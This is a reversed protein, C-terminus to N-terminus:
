MLLNSTAILKRTPYLLDTIVKKCALERKRKESESENPIPPYEGKIADRVATAHEECYAINELKLLTCSDGTCSIWECTDTVIHPSENANPTQPPISPPISQTALNAKSGASASADIHAGSVIPIFSILALFLTLLGLTSFSLISRANIFRIVHNSYIGLKAKKMRTLKALKRIRVKDARSRASKSRSM